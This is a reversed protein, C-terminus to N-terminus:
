SPIDQIPVLLSEAETAYPGNPRLALAIRLLLAANVYNGENEAQAGLLVYPGPDTPDLRQAAEAAYYADAAENSGAYIEALLFELAENNPWRTVAEIGARRATGDQFGLQFDVYIHLLAIADDPSQSLNSATQLMAEAGDYDRLILSASGAEAWFVPNNPDLTAGEQFYSLAQSPQRQDLALEGAAFWVFSVSPAQELGRAIDESAPVPRGLLLQTWGLYACAEGNQPELAVARQFPALALAPLNASLFAHGLQGESAFEDLPLSAVFTFGDSVLWSSSTSGLALGFDRKATTADGEWLALMGLHAPALPNSPPVQRWLEVAGVVNGQEEDAMALQELAAINGLDAGRRWAAVAGADDGLKSRADGLALWAAGSGLDLAVCRDYAHAAELWEQQLGFVQGELCYPKPDAPAGRSADAYDALALDYRLSARQGAAAVLYQEESPYTPVCAVAVALLALAFGALYLYWRATRSRKPWARLTGPVLRPSNGSTPSWPTSM